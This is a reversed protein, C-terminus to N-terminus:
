SHPTAREDHPLRTYASSPPYRFPEPSPPSRVLDCAHLASELELLLAGMGYERELRNFIGPLTAALQRITRPTVGTLQGEFLARTGVVPM